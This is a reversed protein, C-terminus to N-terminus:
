KIIELLNDILRYKSYKIEHERDMQLVDLGKEKGVRLNDVMDDIFLAEYSKIDYEKIVYDFFIGESKIVGYKSSVYIKDFYKTLDQEELIRTICPWNDTLMILKYKKSLIELEEKVGEYFTYKDSEYTFNHAIEQALKDTYKPYNIEKLVLSYYEFFNNYEEEETIMKRSIIKSYKKLVQNIEKTDILSMDIVEKFKPTIFWEGTTPGALVKGFDLIIYKYDM